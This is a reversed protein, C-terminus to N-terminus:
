YLQWTWEMKRKKTVKFWSDNEPLNRIKLVFFLHVFLVASKKTKTAVTVKVLFCSVFFPIFRVFIVSTNSISHFFVLKACFCWTWFYIGSTNKENSQGTVLYWISCVLHRAFTKKDNITSWFSSSALSSDEKKKFQFMLLFHRIM